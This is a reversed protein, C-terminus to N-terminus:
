GHSVAVSIFSSGSVFELLSESVVSGDAHRFVEGSVLDTINDINDNVSRDVLTHWVLVIVASGTCDEVDVGSSQSDDNVLLDSVSDDTLSEVDSDFM